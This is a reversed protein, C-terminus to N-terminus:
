KEWSSSIRVATRRTLNGVVPFMSFTEVRTGRKASLLVLHECIFFLYNDPRSVKTMLVIDNVWLKPGGRLAAEYRTNFGSTFFPPPDIQINLPAGSRSKEMLVNQAISCNLGSAHLELTLPAPGYELTLTHQSYNM